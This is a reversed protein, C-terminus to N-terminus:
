LSVALRLATARAESIIAASNISAASAAAAAASASAAAQAATATVAAAQAATVDDSFDGLSAVLAETAVLTAAADAASLLAADAAAEALTTSALIGDDLPRIDSYTAIASDTALDSWGVDFYSGEDAWIQPWRGADDSIIPWALATALTADTYVTAPTSTDQQYFRLKSPLSRGNADRAPMAGPVIIQRAAM